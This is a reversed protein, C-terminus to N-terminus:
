WCTLGLNKVPGILGVLILIICYKLIAEYSQGLKGDGSM